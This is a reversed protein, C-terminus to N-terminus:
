PLAIGMAELYARAARRAEFPRAAERQRAPPPPADLTTAMAQAMAIDDGVPVLVGCRGGQLTEAPGSPCDTSVVPLGNALAEVIVAPSGEWRSALVFLSARAMYRYPNADYGPMWLDKSIELEGALAELAARSRGEGLIVLRGPRTRRLRAFARLLTAFDKRESLEGVGLVVPCDADSFWPHDVPARALAHLRANVIPNPIVHLRERAVGALRELDAAVGSSPTIAADARPYWRAMSRIVAPPKSTNGAAGPDTLAMGLRITLRTPVRTALRALIAARNLGHNATLLAAPRHRLLYAALPALSTGKHGAALQVRRVNAPLTEVFPGHGRISLLDFRLDFHGFEPLLNQVVRDVGSHGSTAFLLAADPGRRSRDNWRNM